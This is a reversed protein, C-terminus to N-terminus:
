PSSDHSPALPAPYCDVPRGSYGNPLRLFKLSHLAAVGGAGNSEVHARFKVSVNDANRNDITFPKTRIELFRRHQNLIRANHEGHPFAKSGVQKSGLKQAITLRAWFDQGKTTGLETQSFVKALACAQYVEGVNRVPFSRLIGADGREPSHNRRIQNKQIGSEVYLRYEGERFEFAAEWRPEAVGDGDVDRYGSSNICKTVRQDGEPKVCRPDTTHDSGLAGPGGGILLALAVTLSVTSGFVYTRLASDM